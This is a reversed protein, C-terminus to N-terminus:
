GHIWFVYQKRLKPYDYFWVVKKYILSKLVMKDKQVSVLFIAIWALGINDFSITDQFPNHNRDSCLSFYYNWNICYTDNNRYPPLQKEEVTMNCTKSGNKYAPLDSCFHM